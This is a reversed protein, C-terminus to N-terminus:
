FLSALKAKVTWLGASSRQYRAAEAALRSVESWAERAADRRGARKLALGRRYASEPSPGHNREFVDLTALADEARDSRTLAEALRLQAAGYAYEEELQVCRQLVPVAGAADGAELRACGLRYHWEAVEPEGEIAAELHPLARRARGQALLLSGLKGANHPSKVRSLERVRSADRRVRYARRGYYSIGWSLLMATVLIGLIGTNRFLPGLFPLRGLVSTLILVLVFFGVLRLM